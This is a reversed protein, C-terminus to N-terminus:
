STNAESSVYGLILSSYPTVKGYLIEIGQRSSPLVLWWCFVVKVLFWLPLYGCIAAYFLKQVTNILKLVVFYFGICQTRRNDNSIASDLFMHAPALITLANSITLHGIHLSLTAVTLVLFSAAIQTKPIRFRAETWSLLTSKKSLYKAYGDFHEM